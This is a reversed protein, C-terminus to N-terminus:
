RITTYVTFLPYYMALLIGAIVLGMTVLMVPEVIALVNTLNTEIEQDYFDSVNRLMDESSGTEEGVKVMQIAMSPMLGTQHLSRWLSVGEKVNQSVKGLQDALLSNEVAAAAVEISNVLPIGGALLTSLTRMLQSVSFKSWMSGIFPLKMKLHDAIRRAAGSTRVYLRLLLALVIVAPLIWFVDQRLTLATTVLLQTIWPLNGAFGTYFESFKPIVYGVLIGIVGFSLGLLLLPYILSSIVKTRIALVIKVYGLYRRIVQELTASKEGALISATYVPPFVDPHAAFAESLPSGGKVKQYADELIASFAPNGIRELLLELCQLLPLGAHILAAFEQNFVLFEKHSVKRRQPVLLNRLLSFPEFRRRIGFVYYGQQEMQERLMRESDAAYSRELIEGTTTGFKCVFEAM